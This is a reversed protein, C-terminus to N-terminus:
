QYHRILKEGLLEADAFLVMEVMQNTIGRGVNKAVDILLRNYDAYCSSPAVRQFARTKCLTRVLASAGKVQTNQSPLPPFIVPDPTNALVQIATLSVSTRSDFIAFRGPDRITLAKSWSAIGQVGRAFINEESGTAYLRINEASNRRIGGWVSIYWDCLAIRADRSGLQWALHLAKKLALNKEFWSGAPLRIDFPLAGETFSWTYQEPLKEIRNRVYQLVSEYM